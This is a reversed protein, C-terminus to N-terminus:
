VSGQLTLTQVDDGSWSVLPQRARHKYDSGDSNMTTMAVVRGRPMRWSVSHLPCTQKLATHTQSQVCHSSSPHATCSKPLLIFPSDVWDSTQITCTSEPSNKWQSFLFVWMIRFKQTSKLDDEDQGGGAKHWM